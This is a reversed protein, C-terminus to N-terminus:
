KQGKENILQAIQKICWWIGRYMSSILWWFGRALICILRWMMYIMAYMLWFCLVMMYWCLQISVVFALIISMYIANKKTIRIGAGLRFGGVKAFTKSLSLFM